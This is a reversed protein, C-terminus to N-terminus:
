PPLQAPEKRRLATFAAYRQRLSDTVKVRAQEREPSNVDEQRYFVNGQADIRCLRQGQYEVPLSDNEQSLSTFGVRGLVLALEKFYLDRKM